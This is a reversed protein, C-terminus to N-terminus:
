KSQCKICIKGGAAAVLGTIVKKCSLCRPAPKRKAARGSPEACKKVVVPKFYVPEPRPPPPPPVVPKAPAPAEVVAVSSDDDLRYRRFKIRGKPRAGGPPLTKAEPRPPPGNRRQLVALSLGGELLMLCGSCVPIERQIESRNILNRQVAYVRRPSRAPVHTHCVECNYSM